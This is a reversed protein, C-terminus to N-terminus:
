LKAPLKMVVILVRSVGACISKRVKYAELGCALDHRICVAESVGDELPKVYCVASRIHFRLFVYTLLSGLM